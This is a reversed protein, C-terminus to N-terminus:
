KKLIKKKIQKLYYFELIQKLVASIYKKINAKYIINLVLIKWTKRMKKFNIKSEINELIQKAFNFNFIFLICFFPFISYKPRLLM